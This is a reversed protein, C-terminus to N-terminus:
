LFQTAINTPPIVLSNSKMFQTSLTFQGGLASTKPGLGEDCHISSNPSNARGFAKAQFTLKLINLVHSYLCCMTDPQILFECDSM